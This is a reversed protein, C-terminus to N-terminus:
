IKIFVSVILQEPRTDIHGEIINNLGLFEVENSKFGREYRIDFGINGIQLAAGINLGATFNKEIDGLSVGKLNTDFIYQLSPGAFISLPKIIDFGLLLPLDIKNMDFDGEAYESNTKTYVLEPRFYFSSNGSTKAYVGIHYGIKGDAKSEIIDGVEHILDGNSSFNLGGKIGWDLQANCITTASFFLIVLIFLKKMFIM